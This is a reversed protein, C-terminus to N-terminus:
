ANQIKKTLILGALIDEKSIRKKSMERNIICTCKTILVNIGKSNEKVINKRKIKSLQM